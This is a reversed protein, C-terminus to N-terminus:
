NEEERHLILDAKLVEISTIFESGTKIAMYVDDIDGLPFTRRLEQLDEVITEITKQGSELQEYLEKDM